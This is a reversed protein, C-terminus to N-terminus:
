ASSTHRPDKSSHTRVNVKPMIDQAFIQMQDKLEDLNDATFYTGCLHTVGAEALRQIKEVLEDVTGILNAEEFAINAQDKLTSARLSVLHQYIQSRRFREVAAEHTKGIYTILQPAIDITAGDRGHEAAIRRIDQVRQALQHAPM